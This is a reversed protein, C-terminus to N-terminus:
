SVLVKKEVPTDPKLNQFFATDCGCPANQCGLILRIGVIATDVSNGWDRLM